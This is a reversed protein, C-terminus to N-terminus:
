DRVTVDGARNKDGLFVDNLGIELPVVNFLPTEWQGHNTEVTMSRSAGDDGDHLELVKVM